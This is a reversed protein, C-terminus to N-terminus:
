ATVRTCACCCSLRRRPGRRWTSSRSATCSSAMTTSRTASRTSGASGCGIAPSAASTWATSRPATAGPARARTCRGTPPPSCIPRRAAGDFPVVGISATARVTQGGFVMVHERVAALLDGALTRADEPGCPAALVAFEDGGLRALTDTVRLRHHITAGVGTLLEDGAHHGWTDNVYKFNDLDLVLLAGTSDDRAARACASALEEEFRRRNFLGTLPDHNAMYELKAEIRRRESVDRVISSGGIVNGESDRITSVTTSVEILQGTKRRRVGEIPESREGSLALEHLRTHVGSRRDEDTFLLDVHSGLMEGVSYGFLREAAPNWSTIVARTDITYIADNATQVIEALRAEAQQARIQDTVDECVGLMRVPSGDEDVVVEGQTRMLFESGDPRLIRKVDEFPQHDAFARCNRDNVSERDDPHVCALFKEYTPEFSQPEFGYIRYLEDSWMVKDAPIDWEWSGLRALQQAESLREHSRRLDDEIRRRETADRVIAVDAPGDETDVRSVSIDVPLESGDIQTLVTTREALGAPLVTTIGEGLLDARSRCTLAEAAANVLMIAGFSNCVIVADPAVELLGLAIPAPAETRESTAVAAPSAAPDVVQATPDHTPPTM